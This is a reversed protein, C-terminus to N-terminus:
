PHAKKTLSRLGWVCWMANLRTLQYPSTHIFLHISSAIQNLFMLILFFMLHNLKLHTLYCMEDCVLSKLSSIFTHIFSYAVTDEPSLHFMVLWALQLHTGKVYLM